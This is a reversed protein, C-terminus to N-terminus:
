KAVDGEASRGASDTEIFRHDSERGRGIGPAVPEDGRVAGDEGKTGGREVAGGAGDVEVLGDHTHRGRGIAGTVPEHGRVAAEEGKPSGREVAGGRRRWRLWGM